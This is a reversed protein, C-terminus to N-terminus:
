RGRGPGADVTDCITWVIRSREPGDLRVSLSDRTDTRPMLENYVASTKMEDENFLSPIPALRSDPLARIRPLREDVAHWGGFYERELQVHREGRYCFQAFFIDVNEPAAGDGFVLHNGKTGCFEDILGSAAPWRADDLVGAHLSALIQEFLDQRSM